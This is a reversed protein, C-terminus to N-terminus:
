PHGNSRFGSLMQAAARQLDRGSKLVHAVDKM